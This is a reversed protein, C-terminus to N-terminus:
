SDFRILGYYNFDTTETIKLEKCYFNVLDSHWELTPSLTIETTLLGFGWM